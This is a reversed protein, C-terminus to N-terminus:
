RSNKNRMYSLKSSYILEYFDEKEKEIEMTRLEEKTPERKIEVKTEAKETNEKVNAKKSFFRNMYDFAYIDADQENFLSDHFNNDTLSQSTNSYFSNLCNRGYDSDDYAHQAQYSHRVEHAIVKVIYQEFTLGQVLAENEDYLNKRFFTITDFERKLDPQATNKAIVAGIFEEAFQCNPVYMLSLDKSIKSVLDIIAKEKVDNSLSNFNGNYFNDSAYTKISFVNFVTLFLLFCYFSIFFKKM